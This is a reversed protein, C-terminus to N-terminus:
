QVASSDSSMGILFAFAFIAGFVGAGTAMTGLLAQVGIPLGPSPPPRYPLVDHPRPPDPPLESM